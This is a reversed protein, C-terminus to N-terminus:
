QLHPQVFFGSYPANPRTNDVLRIEVQLTFTGVTDEFQVVQPCFTGDIKLIYHVSSM